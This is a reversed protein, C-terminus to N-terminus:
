EKGSPDVDNPNRFVIENLERTLLLWLVFQSTEEETLDHVSNM